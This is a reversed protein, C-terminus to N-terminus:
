SPNGSFLLKPLLKNLKEQRVKEAEALRQYRDPTESPICAIRRTMEEETTSEGRNKRAEVSEWYKKTGNAAEENRNSRMDDVMTQNTWSNPDNKPNYSSSRDKRIKNNM